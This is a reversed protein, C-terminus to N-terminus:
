SHANGDTSLKGPRGPMIPLLLTISSSKWFITVIAWPLKVTRRNPSLARALLQYRARDVLV